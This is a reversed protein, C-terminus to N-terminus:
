KCKIVGARCVQLVTIYFGVLKLHANFIILSDNGTPLLADNRCTVAAFGALM